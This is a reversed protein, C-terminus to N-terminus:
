RVTKSLRESSEELRAAVAKVRNRVRLRQRAKGVHDDVTRPSIGLAAGIERSSLGAAALDLCETQRLTLRPESMSLRCQLGFDFRSGSLPLCCWGCQTTLSLRQLRSNCCKWALTLRM